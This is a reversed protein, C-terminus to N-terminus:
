SLETMAESYDSEEVHLYHGKNDNEARKWGKGKITDAILVTPKNNKEKESVIPIGDPYEIQYGRLAQEIEIYNHGDIRHTNWGWSEWLRELPEVNLIDTTTGMAQFRNNDVIVTLNELHHHGAILASEHTTGIAQEGDSMLVYVHGARKTQKRNLAFGVGAPLGYGMSGGAFRLGFCGQPEVLGIYKEEGAKCYRQLDEPPIVGKRSLFYYVSAAVWGKSVVLEDVEIDMQEFLVTLLDICSFNSGIHSTGARYIM